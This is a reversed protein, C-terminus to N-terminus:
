QAPCDADKIINNRRSTNSLQRGEKPTMIEIVEERSSAFITGDLFKTTM